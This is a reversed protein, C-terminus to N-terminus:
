ERLEKGCMPCYDFDIASDYIGREIKGKRGDLCIRFNGDISRIAQKGSCYPCVDEKEDESKHAPAVPAEPTKEQESDKEYTIPTQEAFDGIETQGELEEAEEKSDAKGAEDEMGNQQGPTKKQKGSAKQEPKKDKEEPKKSRQDTKKGKPEPKKEEKEPRKTGPLERAFVAKYWEEPTTGLPSYIDNVASLLEKYTCSQKDTGKVLKVHDEKFFYMIGGARRYGFGTGSLALRIDDEYTIGDTALRIMHPFLEPLKQGIEPLDMLQRISNKLYDSVPKDQMVAAEFDAEKNEEGAERLDKKLSRIDERKMDPTLEERVTDPLTLMEALKTQEFGEYQTKLKTSYGGESFEKNIDMFRSTQSQKWGYESEAFKFISSYGKEKYLEAEDAKRLIYGIQVISTCANRQCNNIERTVDEMNNLVITIQEM